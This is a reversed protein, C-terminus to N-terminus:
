KSELLLIFIYFQLMEEVRYHISLLRLEAEAEAEPPLKIEAGRSEAGDTGGCSQNKCYKHQPVLGPGATIIIEPDTIIIIKGSGDNL